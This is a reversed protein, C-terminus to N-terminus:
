AFSQDDGARIAIRHCSPPPLGGSGRVFVRNILFGSDSDPGLDGVLIERNPLADLADAGSQAGRAPDHTKHSQGSDSLRAKCFRQEVITDPFRCEIRSQSM